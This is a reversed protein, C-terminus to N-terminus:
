PPIKPIKQCGNRQLIDLCVFPHGKAAVWFIFASFLFLRMTDFFIPTFIMLPPDKTHKRADPRRHKRKSRHEPANLINQVDTFWTSTTSCFLLFIYIRLVNYGFM